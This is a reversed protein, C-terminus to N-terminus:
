KAPTAAAAPKSPASPAPPAPPAAKMKVYEAHDMMACKYFGCLNAEKMKANEDSEELHVGDIFTYRNMLRVSKGENNGKLIFVKAM